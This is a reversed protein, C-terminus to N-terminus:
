FHGLYGVEELSSYSRFTADDDDEGSAFVWVVGTDKDQRIFFMHSANHGVLFYEEGGICYPSAVGDASYAEALAKVTLPADPVQITPKEAMELEELADWESKRIRKIM